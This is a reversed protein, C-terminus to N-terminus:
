RRRGRADCQDALHDDTRLPPCRARLRDVTFPRDPLKRGAVELSSIRSRRALRTRARAGRCRDSSATSTDMSCSSCMTSSSCPVSPRRIALDSGHETGSSYPPRHFFVIRWPQGQSAQLDSTLWAIQEQRRALSLFAAQTDLSILHVPGYDVSYFREANNPFATSAGDRPLVFLTRYPTASSTMDDHNGITPFIARKRLWASYKPFFRADFEAYTGRSYVCYRGHAGRLRVDRQRYSLRDAVAHQIRRWQGRLRSASDNRLGGGACDQVHRHRWADSRNRCEPSRVFVHNGRQARDADSRAPLLRPRWDDFHKSIHFTGDYHPATRLRHPIRRARDRERSNGVGRDRRDGRSTPSVTGSRTHNVITRRRRSVRGRGVTWSSVPQAPACRRDVFRM